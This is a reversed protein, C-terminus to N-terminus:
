PRRQSGMFSVEIPGSPARLRSRSFCRLFRNAAFSNRTCNGCNAVMRTSRTKLSSTEWGGAGCDMTSCGGARAYKTYGHGYALQLPSNWPIIAAVVGIPERLTYNLLQARNGPIVDGLIKDAIGGYYYFFEPVRKVQGTTECTIVRRAIPGVRLSTLPALPVDEDVAAGGILDQRGTM